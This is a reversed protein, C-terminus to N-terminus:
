GLGLENCTELGEYSLAWRGKPDIENWDKHNPHFVLHHRGNWFPQLCPLKTGRAGGEWLLTCEPHM